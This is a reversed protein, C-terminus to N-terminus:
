GDVRRCFVNDYQHLTGDNAINRASAREWNCELHRSTKSSLALENIAGSVVLRVIDNSYLDCM